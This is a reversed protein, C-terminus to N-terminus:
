NSMLTALFYPFDSMLFCDGWYVESFWIWFFEMMLQLSSLATSCSRSRFPLSTLTSLIVIYSLVVPRFQVYRIAPFVVRGCDLQEKVPVGVDVGPVLVAVRGQMQGTPTGSRCDDARQDVVACLDVRLVSASLCRQM